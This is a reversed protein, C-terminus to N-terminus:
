LRSTSASRAARSISPSSPGTSWARRRSVRRARQRGPPVRRPADRRLQPDGGGAALDRPHPLRAGQRRARHDLGGLGQAGIGLANVKDFIEIRLEEARTRRAARAEVRAHRAHEMLSEKALVMAKEARAASASAWCAPRVGTAAWPRSRSRPDLGGRQRQSEAGRLAVQEGLRRGQGGAQGRGQRRSRSGHAGGGAHQRAHEQARRRPRGADLRAAPQGQRHLRPARGREVMEQVSM